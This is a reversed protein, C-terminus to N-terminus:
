KRNKQFKIGKILRLGILRNLMALKSVDGIEGYDIINSAIKLGKQKRSKPYIYDILKKTGVNVPKRYMKNFAYIIKDEPMLLYSAFMDAQVEEPKKKVGDIGESKRCLIEKKKNKKNYLPVHLVIHGIEHAMTFALRGKQNLINANIEILKKDIDLGGLIDKDKYIGDNRFDIDYGLYEIVHIVDLPKATSLNESTYFDELLDNAKKEIINHKIYPIKM